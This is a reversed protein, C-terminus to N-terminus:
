LCSIACEVNFYKDSLEELDMVKEFNSVEALKDGEVSQRYTEMANEKSMENLAKKFGIITKRDVVTSCEDACEAFCLYRKTDIGTKCIEEMDTSLEKAVQLFEELIAQRYNKLAKEAALYRIEYNKM